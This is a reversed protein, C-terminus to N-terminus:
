RPNPDWFSANHTVKKLREFFVPAYKIASSFYDKNLRASHRPTSLIYMLDSLLLIAEDTGPCFGSWNRV